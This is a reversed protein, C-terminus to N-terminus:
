GPSAPEHCFALVMARQEPTEPSPLHRRERDAIRLRDLVDLVDDRRALGRRLLWCGVVTGTRGLGGLCHLYVPLDQDLSRDITDLIHELTENTPVSVDRIAHRIHKAGEELADGYRVLPVGQHSEGAETLDVFTRLGAQYLERARQTGAGPEPSGPYAGALLRGEVVWYCRDTPPHAGPGALRLPSTTSSSSDKV